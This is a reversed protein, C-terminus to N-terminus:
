KLDRDGVKTETIAILSHPTGDIWVPRRILRHASRQDERIDTEVSISWKSNALISERLAREIFEDFCVASMRLQRCVEDRIDLLPVYLSGIRTHAKQHEQVITSFFLKKVSQWKPRHLYLSEGSPNKISNIPEFDSSETSKLFVSTPFILRGPVFPHADTYFLLEISVLRPCWAMYTRPALPAKNGYFDLNDEGPPSNSFLYKVAAERMAMSLRRRPAYTRMKDKKDGKKDSPPKAVKRRKLNSLRFWAQEVMKIWLNEDIPFAGQTVSDILFKSAKTQILLEDNWSNDEWKRSKPRWDRPPSPIVIEGQGAPNLQWLRHVFWGPIIYLNYLHTTLSRFFSRQDENYKKLASKGKDTIKFKQEAVYRSSSYVSQVWGFARLERILDEIGRASQKEVYLLGLLRQPLEDKLYNKTVIENQNIVELAEAFLKLDTFLGISRSKPKSWRKEPFYVM